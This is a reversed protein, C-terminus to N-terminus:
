EKIMKLPLKLFLKQNHMIISQGDKTLILVSKSQCEVVYFKMTPHLRSGYAGVKCLARPIQEKVCITCSKKHVKLLLFFFIM